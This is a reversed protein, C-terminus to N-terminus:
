KCCVDSVTAISYRGSSTADKVVRGNISISVTGTGGNKDQASLYLFQGPKGDFRKEWPLSVERQETGGTENAYTLSATGSGDVRYTVKYSGAESYRGGGCCFIALVIWLGLVMLMSTVSSTM